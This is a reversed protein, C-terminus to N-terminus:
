QDWKFFIKYKKLNKTIAIYNRTEEGREERWGNGTGRRARKM